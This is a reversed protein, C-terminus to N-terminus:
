AVQEEILADLNLASVDIQGTVLKPLLLDRLSALRQCSESLARITRLNDALVANAADAVEGPAIVMPVAALEAKGLSKFIAGDNGMSDEKAFAERLRGLLLGQRGDKAHLAALGRGITIDRDAINIRGVPARVSLLIDGAAASRGGASCWKRTVPFHSGFDTVGQHFAKGTGEDNYFESKPSQGMTIHAVNKLSSVTWGNPIPGLASGVLPVEEHGPYRFRVFWERYMARAVEELVEVRRRNNEILEDISRLTRAIASREGAGPIPFRFSLLKELSLNDQTTGRAANGLRERHADLLYKVFYADIPQGSPTFGLVSDPFCGPTALVATDAINAAITICTIGPEWVRSQAVGLESYWQQPRRMHLVSAKVDGTQFFPM